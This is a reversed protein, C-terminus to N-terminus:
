RSEKRQKAEGYSEKKFTTLTFLKGEEQGM